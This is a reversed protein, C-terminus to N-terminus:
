AGSQCVEGVLKELNRELVVPRGKSTM